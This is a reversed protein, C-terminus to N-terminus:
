HNSIGTILNRYNQYYYILPVAARFEYYRVQVYSTWVNIGFKIICKYM